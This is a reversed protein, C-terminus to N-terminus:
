PAANAFFKGKKMFVFGFLPLDRVVQRWVFHKPAFPSNVFFLTLWLCNSWFSISMTLQSAIHFCILGLGWLRHLSPRFSAWLSFFQLYITGIMLPWAILYHEILWTGLYSTADTQVLRNAIQLPLAEPMLAHVQNRMAQIPIQIIKFFGSMTYTLMIMSQCGSFVILTAARIA